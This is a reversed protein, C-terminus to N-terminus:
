SGEAREALAFAAKKGGPVDFCILTSGGKMQRKVIRGAPPRRPRSLDRAVVEPQEALFDAIKGATETQQRV